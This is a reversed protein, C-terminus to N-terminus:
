VLSIVFGLPPAFAQAEALTKLPAALANVGRAAKSLCTSSCLFIKEPTGAHRQRGSILGRM